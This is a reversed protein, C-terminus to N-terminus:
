LVYDFPVLVCPAHVGVAGRPAALWIISHVICCFVTFEVLALAQARHCSCAVPMAVIMCQRHREGAGCRLVKGDCGNRWLMGGEV